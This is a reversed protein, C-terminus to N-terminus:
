YGQGPMQPATIERLYSKVDSPMKGRIDVLVRTSSSSIQYVLVPSAETLVLEAHNSLAQPCNKLIVGVFHSKTVPKEQVLHRRFKSFCGDAVITLPAHLTQPFFYADISDFQSM